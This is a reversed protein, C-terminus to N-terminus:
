APVTITYCTVNNARKSKTISHGKKKLGTLAARISHPQWGTASIIEEITAGNKRKLLAIVKAIKTRPRAAPAKTTAITPAPKAGSTESIATKTM